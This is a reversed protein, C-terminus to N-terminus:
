AATGEPRVNVARPRNDRGNVTEFVVRQGVVLSRNNTDQIDSCHVFVDNPRGEVQIFGYGEEKWKKVVGRLTPGEARQESRRFRRDPRIPQNSM